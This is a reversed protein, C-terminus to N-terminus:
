TRGGGRGAAALVRGVCPPNHDHSPPPPGRPGGVVPAPGQVATARLGATRRARSAPPGRSHEMRRCPPQPQFPGTGVSTCSKHRLGTAHRVPARRPLSREVRGDPTTHRRPPGRAGPPRTASSPCPRATRQRCHAGSGVAAPARGVATSPRRVSQQEDMMLLPM